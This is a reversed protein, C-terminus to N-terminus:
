CGEKFFRPSEKQCFINTCTSRAPNNEAKKHFSPCTYALERSRGGYSNDNSFNGPFHATLCPMKSESQHRSVFIFIDTSLEDLHNALILDPIVKVLKIKDRFFISSSDFKEKGEKLNFKEILKNAINLSAIDKSSSVITSLTM